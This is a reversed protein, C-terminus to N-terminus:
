QIKGLWRRVAKIAALNSGMSGIVDPQVRGLLAFVEEADFSCVEAPLYIYRPWRARSRSEVIGVRSPTGGIPNALQAQPYDPAKRTEQLYAAAEKIRDSQTSAMDEGTTVPTYAFISMFADAAAIIMAMSWLTAPCRPHQGLLDALRHYRIREGM